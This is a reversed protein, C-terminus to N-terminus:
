TVSGKNPRDLDIMMRMTTSKGSGNPGLFGTVIGPRVSFSLNDVATTEGYRKVLGQADIMSPSDKMDVRCRQANEGHLARARWPVAADSPHTARYAAGGACKAVLLDAINELRCASITASRSASFPRAVGIGTLTM